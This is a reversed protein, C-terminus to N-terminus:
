KKLYQTVLDNIVSGVGYPVSYPRRATSNFDHDFGLKHVWEHVLTESLDALSAGNYYNNYIYLKPDNAYTFAVASSFRKYWPPYYISLYMDASQDASTVKPLREAGSMILDYIQLNTLNNNQVFQQKGQYTFGLIKDKFDPGNLVQNLITVAQNLKQTQATTFSTKSLVNIRLAFSPSAALLSALGVALMLLSQTHKLKMRMKEEGKSDSFASFVM